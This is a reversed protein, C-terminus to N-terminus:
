GRQVAYVVRMSHHQGPAVTVANEAANASEVCLMGRYAGEGMDAMQASKEAWPNWVVTSDSGSKTVLVNRRLKRDEIV